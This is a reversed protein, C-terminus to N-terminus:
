GFGPNSMKPSSLIAILVNPDFRYLWFPFRQLNPLFPLQLFQEPTFSPLSSQCSHFKFEKLESLCPATLFQDFSSDTRCLDLTELKIGAANLTPTLADFKFPFDTLSLHNLLKSSWLFPSNIFQQLSQERLQVEEDSLDRPSSSASLTLSILNSLLPSEGLAQLASPHLYSNINLHTLSKLMSREPDFLQRITDTTIKGATPNFHFEKLQSVHPSRSLALLASNDCTDSLLLKELQFPSPQPSPSTTTVLTTTTTSTTTITTTSPTTTSTLASLSSTTPQPVNNDFVAFGQLTQDIGTGQLDLVKLNPFQTTTAIQPISLGRNNSLNLTHLNPFQHPANFLPDIDKINIDTYSLDLTVLHQFIPHSLINM